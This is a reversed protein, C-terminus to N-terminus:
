YNTKPNIELVFVEFKISKNTNLQSLRKLKAGKMKLILFNHLM